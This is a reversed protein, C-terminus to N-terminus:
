SADSTRPDPSGSPSFPIDGDRRNVTWAATALKDFQADSLKADLKAWREPSMPPDVMCRRLLAPFFTAQNVGYVDRPDLKGTAPDKRPPHAAYLANWGDDGDSPLARLTFTRTWQRMEAVVNDLDAQEPDVKAKGGGLRTDGPLQQAEQEAAREAIRASIEEYRRRLKGNLCLDVGVEALTAGDLLDDFNM